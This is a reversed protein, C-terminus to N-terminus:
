PATGSLPAGEPMEPHRADYELIAEALAQAIKEQYQSTGLLKTDEVNSLFGIEVLVSAMQARSLVFFPAQRVGRNETKLAGTLHTHVLIALEESAKIQETSALSLLTQFLPDDPNKGEKELVANEALALKRAEADSAETSLLYTEVGRATKRPASNAHISVFLRAGLHNALAMREQLPVYRDEERTLKVPLDPKKKRLADRVKLAVDLVLRSETYGSEAVTGTDEGGHGPDIVIPPLGPAQVATPVPPPRPKACASFVLAGLLVGTSFARTKKATKPFPIM